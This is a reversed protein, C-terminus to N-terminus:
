TALYALLYGLWHTLWGAGPRWMAYTSACEM